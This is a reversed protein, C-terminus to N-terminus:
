IAGYSTSNLTKVTRIAIEFNNNNLIRDVVEGFGATNRHNYYVFNKPNRLLDAVSVGTLDFDNITQTREESLLHKSLFLNKASILKKVAAIDGDIDKGYAVIYIHKSLKQNEDKKLFGGVIANYPKGRGVDMGSFKLLHKIVGYKQKVDKYNLTYDNLEKFDSCFQGVCLIVDAKSKDTEEIVFQKLYNKIKNDALPFGTSVELYASIERKFLPFFAYNNRENSESVKNNTDLSVHLFEDDDTLSINQYIVKFRDGSNLDFLQSAEKSILGNKGQARFTINVNMATFSGVLSVKATVLKDSEFVNIDGGDIQLDKEQSCASCDFLLGKYDNLIDLHTTKSDCLTVNDPCKVVFNMKQGCDKSLNFEAVGAINTIKASVEDRVVTLDRMPNGNRDEAIVQVNGTCTNINLCPNIYDSESTFNGSNICKTGASCSAKAIITWDAGHWGSIYYSSANICRAAKKDVVYYTKSGSLQYEGAHLCDTYRKGYVGNSNAFGYLVKFFDIKTSFISKKM